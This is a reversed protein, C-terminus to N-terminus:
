VALARLSAVGDRGEVGRLGGAEMPTGDRGQFKADAAADFAAALEDTLVLFLNVAGGRFTIKRRAYSSDGQPTALVLDSIMRSIEQGLAPCQKDENTM